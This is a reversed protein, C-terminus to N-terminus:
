NNINIVPINSTTSNWDLNNVIWECQL